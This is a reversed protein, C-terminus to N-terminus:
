GAVDARLFVSEARMPKQSSGKLDVGALLPFQMSGFWRTKRHEMEIICSACSGAIPQNGIVVLVTPTNEIAKRFRYWWSLPIRRLINPAADCFDFAVVGFGGTHLLLDAAKLARDPQRDCRVWLLKELNVGNRLSTAPDFSNAWDVLACLEGRKTSAALISHALATRGASRRGIIESISGRPLGALSSMDGPLPLLEREKPPERLFSHLPAPM